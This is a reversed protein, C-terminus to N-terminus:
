INEEMRMLSDYGHWTGCLITERRFDKLPMYEIGLLHESSPYREKLIKKFKIELDFDDKAKVMEVYDHQNDFVVQVIYRM